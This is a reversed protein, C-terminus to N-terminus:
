AKLRRWIPMPCIRVTSSHWASIREAYTPAACRPGLWSRTGLGQMASILRTSCRMVSDLGASTRKLSTPATIVANDLQAGSMDAEGLCAGQLVANAM